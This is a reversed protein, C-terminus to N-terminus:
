RLSEFGEFKSNRQWCCEEWLDKIGAGERGWAKICFTMKETLGEGVVRELHYCGRGMKNTDQAIMVM